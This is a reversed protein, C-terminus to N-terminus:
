EVEVVDKEEPVFVKVHLEDRLVHALETAAHPEGHVCYVKKPLSEANRIWSLLKKQDGHASLGGIAKIHAKVPITEGHITVREAGEYLKRGLTGQAQYGVM